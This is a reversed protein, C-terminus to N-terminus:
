DVHHWCHAGHFCRVRVHLLPIDERQQPHGMAGDGLRWHGCRLTRRTQHQLIQPVNLYYRHTVGRLWLELSWLTDCVMALRFLM